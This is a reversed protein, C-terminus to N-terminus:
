WAGMIVLPLTQLFGMDMTYKVGNRPLNVIKVQRPPNEPSIDSDVGLLNSEIWQM